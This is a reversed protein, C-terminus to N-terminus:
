YFPLCLPPPSDLIFFSFSASMQDDSINMFQYKARYAFQFQIKIPPCRQKSYWLMIVRHICIHIHTYTCVDAHIYMYVYVLMYM